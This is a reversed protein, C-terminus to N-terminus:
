WEELQAKFNHIQDRRCAGKLM